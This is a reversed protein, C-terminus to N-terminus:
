SPTSPSLPYSMASLPYSNPILLFNTFAVQEVILVKEKREVNFKRSSSFIHLM